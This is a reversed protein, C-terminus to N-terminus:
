DVAKSPMGLSKGIGSRQALLWALFYQKLAELVQGSQALSFGGDRQLGDRLEEPFAYQEIFRARGRVVALKRSFPVIVATVAIAVFGLFVLGLVVSTDM